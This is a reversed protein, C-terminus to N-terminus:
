RDDKQCVKQKESIILSNIRVPKTIIGVALFAIDEWVEIWLIFRDFECSFGTCFNRKQYVSHAYCQITIGTGIETDRM